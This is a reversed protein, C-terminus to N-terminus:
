IINIIGDMMKIKSKFCGMLERKEENSGSRLVYKAYTKLNIEKHKKNSNNIELVGKNFNNIRKSEEEFKIQLGVDNVDIKDILKILQEILEEERLYENKCHRDKSRGCGYYIYKAVTGNKLKKYKEEASIGSGCLGCTMLKTFAFEHNERLQEKAEKNWRRPNYECPKLTNIDAYEIKLNDKSM